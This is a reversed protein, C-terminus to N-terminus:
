IEPYFDIDYNLIKMILLEDKADIIANHTESYNNVGLMQLM